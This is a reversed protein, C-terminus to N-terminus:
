CDIIEKEEVKPHTKEMAYQLKWRSERFIQFGEQHWHQYESEQKPSNL